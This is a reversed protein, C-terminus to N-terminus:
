AKKQNRVGRMAMRVGTRMDTMMKRLFKRPALYVLSRAVIKAVIPIDRTLTLVECEVYVGGDKEEARWYSNLRWMFGTDHRVPLEHEEPTGASEVETIRTAYSASILHRADPQTYHVDLYTDLVVTLIIKKRTRVYIKFDDGERSLLKSRVVDPSYYKGMNDYDQFFVKIESVNM